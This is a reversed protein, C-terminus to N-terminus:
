KIDRTPTIATDNFEYSATCNTYIAELKNSSGDTLIITGSKIRNSPCDTKNYSLNESSIAIVVDFATNDVTGGVKFFGSFNDITGAQKPDSMNTPTITTDLFMGIEMTESGQTTKSVMDFVGVHTTDNKTGEAYMNILSSVTSGNGTFSMLFDDISVIFGGEDNSDDKDQAKVTGKLEISVGLLSTSCDVRQTQDVPILDLDADTSDGSITPECGTVSNPVVLNSNNQTAQALYANQTEGDLADSSADKAEGGDVATEIYDDFESAFEGAFVAASASTLTGSAESPRELPNDAGCAGTFIFLLTSTLAPTKKFNM